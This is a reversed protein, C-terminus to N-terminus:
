FNKPGRCSHGIPDGDKVSISKKEVVPFELDYFKVFKEFYSDSGLMSSRSHYEEELYYLSPNSGLNIIKLFM